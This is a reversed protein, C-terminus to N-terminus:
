DIWYRLTIRQLQDRALRLELVDYGAADCTTCAYDLLGGDSRSPEGLVLRVEDAAMGLRLPSEPRLYRDDSITLSSLLERGDYGARYFQASLGPYYLTLVSDTVAADHPNPVSRARVSDPDGIAKRLAARTSGLAIPGYRFFAEVPTEASQQAVEDQPQSGHGCAGLLLLIFAAGAPRKGLM